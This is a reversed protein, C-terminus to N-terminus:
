EADKWEVVVRAEKPDGEKKAMAMAVHFGIDEAFRLFAAPQKDPDPVRSWSGSRGGAENTVYIASM